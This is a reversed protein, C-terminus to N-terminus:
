SAQMDFDRELRRVRREPAPAASSRAISRTPGSAKAIMTPKDGRNSRLRLPSPMSMDIVPETAGDLKLKAM